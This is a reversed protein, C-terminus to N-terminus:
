REGGVGRPICISPDLFCNTTVCRPSRGSLKAELDAIRGELEKQMQKLEGINQYTLSRNGISYSSVSGSILAALGEEVSWLLNYLNAREEFWKEYLSNPIARDTM